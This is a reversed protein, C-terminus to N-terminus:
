NKRKKCSKEIKEHSHITCWFGPVNRKNKEDKLLLLSGHGPVEEKEEEEDGGEGGKGTTNIVNLGQSFPQQKQLLQLPLDLLLSGTSPMEEEKKEEATSENSPLALLLGAAKEERRTSTLDGCRGSTRAIVIVDSAIVDGQITNNNITIIKAMIAMTVTINNHNNFDIKAMFAMRVNIVFSTMTM